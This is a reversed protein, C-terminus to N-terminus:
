REEKGFIRKTTERTHGCARHPATEDLVDTM